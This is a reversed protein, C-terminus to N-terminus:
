HTRTLSIANPLRDTLSGVSVLTLPAIRAGLGVALVQQGAM